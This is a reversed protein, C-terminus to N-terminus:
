PITLTSGNDLFILVNINGTFLSSYRLFLLYKGVNPSNFQFSSGRGTRLLIFM